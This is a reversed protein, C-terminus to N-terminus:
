QKKFLFHGFINKITDKEKTNFCIKYTLFSANTITIFLIIALQLFVNFDIYTKIIWSFLISTVSLLILIGWIQCILKKFSEKTLACTKKIIWFYCCVFEGIILGIVLGTLSYYEILLISSSLGIFTSSFQLWAIEKHKNAAKLVLSSSMWPTQLVLYVLLLRLLTPDPTIKGNTWFSIFKPGEFWMTSAIVISVATSIFITLRHTSVLKETENLVEMATLEPWLPSLFHRTFIRILNSLTRSIVYLAVLAGGLKISIIIVSGQHLLILGIDLLFFYFGYPIIQTLNKLSVSELGPSLEPFRKKIDWLAWFVVFVSVIQSFAALIIGGGLYLIIPILALSIFQRINALWQSTSFNGNTRYVATVLGAPLVWLAQLSLFFIVWKTQSSNIEIFGFLKNLPLFYITPILILTGTFSILIFLFISSHLYLRYQKLDNVSYLQTMKNVIALRIGPDLAAIYAALSYMTLWEGYKTPTWFILFIPVLIFNGATLIFQGFVVSLLGNKIRELMSSSNQKKQIM